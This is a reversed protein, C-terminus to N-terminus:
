LPSISASAAPRLRVHAVSASPTFEVCTWGAIASGLDEFLREGSGLLVPVVALHLEDLLGARLYQQVTSAGGGLRVDRGGASARARELAAEIGDTVFHFTTGGAMEVPQRAHHTLVFVDHHFPPDEGWWGTWPGPASASAEWAGRVPGFMNRGMITAGIGEEGLALFRRDVDTAGPSFIWEHLRPGGAGLPDDESQGPGAAYGDLSVSFNHARLETVRTLSETTTSSM